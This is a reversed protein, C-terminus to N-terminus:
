KMQELKFNLTLLSIKEKDKYNNESLSDILRYLLKTKEGGFGNIGAVTLVQSLADGKSIYKDNDASKPFQFYEDGSFKYSFWRSGSLDRNKYNFYNLYNESFLFKNTIFVSVMFLSIPLIILIIEYLKSKFENKMYKKIEFM